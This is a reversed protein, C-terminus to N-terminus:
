CRRECLIRSCNNSISRHFSDAWHMLCESYSFSSRVALYGNGGGKTLAAGADHALEHIPGRPRMDSDRTRVDFDRTRTDYDRTRTDFERSRVEPRRMRPEPVNTRVTEREFKVSM